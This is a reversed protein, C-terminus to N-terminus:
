HDKIIREIKYVSTEDIEIEGIFTCVLKVKKGKNLYGELDKLQTETCSFLRMSNQEEKILPYYLIGYKYLHCLFYNASIFFHNKNSLLSDGQIIKTADIDNGENQFILYKEALDLKKSFNIIESTFDERKNKPIRYTKSFHFSNGFVGEFVITDLQNQSHLLSQFGIVLMIILHVKRM